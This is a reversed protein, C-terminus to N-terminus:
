MLETQQVIEASTKPTSGIKEANKLSNYSKSLLKNAVAALHFLM